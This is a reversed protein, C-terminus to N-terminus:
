NGALCFFVYKDEVVEGSTGKHWQYTTVVKPLNPVKSLCPQIQEPERDVEEIKLIEKGDSHLKRGEM